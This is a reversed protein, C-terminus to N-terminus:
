GTRLWVAKVNLHQEVHQLGREREWDASLWVMRPRSPRSPRRSKVRVVRLTEGVSAPSSAQQPGHARPEFFDFGLELRQALNSLLGGARDATQM